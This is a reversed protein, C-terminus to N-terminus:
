AQQRYKRLRDATIQREPHFRRVINFGQQPPDIVEMFGLITLGREIVRYNVSDDHKSRYIPAVSKALGKYSIIVREGGAADSSLTALCDKLNNLTTLNWHSSRPM